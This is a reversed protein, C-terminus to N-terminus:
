SPQKVCVCRYLVYLMLIMINIHCARSFTACNACIDSISRAVTFFALVFDVDVTQATMARALIISTPSTENRLQPLLRVDDVQKSITSRHAFQARKGTGTHIDITHTIIPLSSDGIPGLGLQLYVGQSASCVLM